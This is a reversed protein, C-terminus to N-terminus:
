QFSPHLIGQCGVFNNDNYGYYGPVCQDCRPEQVNAQCHECSDGETGHQCDLCIGTQPNCKTSRDNCSCLVCDSWSEEVQNLRTYGQFFCFIDLQQNQYKLTSLFYFVHKQYSFSSTPYETENCKM